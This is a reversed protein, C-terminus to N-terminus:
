ENKTPRWRGFPFDDRLLRPPIPSAHPRVLLYADLEDWALDHEPFPDWEVDYTGPPLRGFECRGDPLRRGPGFVYEIRHERLYGELDWRGRRIFDLDNALGELSIVTRESFYTLIGSSWAGFVAEEPVHERMWLGLRLLNERETLSGRPPEAAYRAGAFVLSPGLVLLLFLPTPRFRDPARFVALGAALGLVTVGAAIWYEPSVWPVVLRPRLFLVLFLLPGTAMLKWARGPPRAAVHFLFAFVVCLAVLEPVAYWRGYRVYPFLLGVNVVGSLIAWAFLVLLPLWVTRRFAPADRRAARLLPVLGALALPVVVWFGYGFCHLFSRTVDIASGPWATLTKALHAASFWTVGWEGEVFGRGAELKLTGSTPLLSDFVFHAYLLWPLTVLLTAGAAGVLYRLRRLSTGGGFLAVIGGLVVVFGLANVRALFALGLLIGLGIGSRRRTALAEVDNGLRALAAVLLLAYLVNEKGGLSWELVTPNAWWFAAAAFGATRGVIRTLWRYLWFGTAAYFAGLTAIGVRLFAEREEFCLALGALLLQWLPQFGYTDHLGDFSFHGTRSVNWAIQFYFLSDDPIVSLVQELPAALSRIAAHAFAALALALVLRDIGPAETPAAPPPASM